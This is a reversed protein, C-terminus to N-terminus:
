VEITHVQIIWAFWPSISIGTTDFSKVYPITIKDNPISLTFYSPYFLILRIKGANIM